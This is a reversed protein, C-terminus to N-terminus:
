VGMMDMYKFISKNSLSPFTKTKSKSLTDLAMRVCMGNVREEPSDMVFSQACLLALNETIEDVENKKDPMAMMAFVQRLLNWVIELLTERPILGRLTLNVFFASLSKRKENKKNIDCYLDYNKEPDGSEIRDFVQLFTAVCNEFVRRMVEYRTVLECFLEAYLKSYFRNTSAIDFIANAVVGMDEESVQDVLLTDMLQVIKGTLEAGNKDTMKNLYSRLIDIQSGIGKKKELQTAHFSRLSEWDEDLVGEAPRGGGGGMGSPRHSYRQQQQRGSNNHDRSGGGSRGGGGGGGGGYREPSGGFHSASASSTEKKPFVPTKIYTPSGVQTALENIILMTPESLKLDFGRFLIDRFDRLHYKHM